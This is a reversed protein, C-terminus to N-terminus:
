FCTPNSLNITLDRIEIADVFENFQHSKREKSWFDHEILRYSVDNFGYTHFARNNCMQKIFAEVIPRLIPGFTENDREIRKLNVKTACAIIVTGKWQRLEQGKPYSIDYPTLPFIGPLKEFRLTDSKGWSDLTETIEALTGPQYNLVSLGLQAKTLSVCNGIEFLLDM